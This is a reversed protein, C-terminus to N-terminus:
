ADMRLAYIICCLGVIEFAQVVGQLGVRPLDTLLFAPVFLVVPLGLITVFGLAIFLMPRSSNRRYGRYAQYAVFLGLLAGFLEAVQLLVQATSDFRSAAQLVPSVADFRGGTPAAAVALADGVSPLVSATV